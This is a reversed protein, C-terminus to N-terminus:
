WQLRADRDFTAEDAIAKKDMKKRQESVTGLIPEEKRKRAPMYPKELIHGKKRNHMKILNKLWKILDPISVRRGNKSWPTKWDEWGFGKYRILVNNRLAELKDKQYKLRKLGDNVDSLTKWYADSDWM